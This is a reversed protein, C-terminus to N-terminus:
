LQVMEDAEPLVTAVPFPDVPGFPLMPVMSQWPVLLSRRIDTWTYV